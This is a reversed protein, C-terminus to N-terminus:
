SVSQRLASVVTSWNQGDSLALSWVAVGALGNSSVLNLEQSLSDNNAYWVEEYGDSKAYRAYMLGLTNDWHRVAHHSSLIENVSADGIIESTVYGANHVHWFQTYFPVGLILQNTPVGTDLLDNVSNMVWPLDAVPGPTSGQYHEDYAMLIIHDCVSSLGAHFFAANDNLQVIDPSVDVSVDIHLPTCADHLESIFSTFADRDKPDLNEFDINLGDLHNHVASQVLSHMLRDRAPLSHLLQHTMSMKFQNDVLAWIAIHHQHAFSVVSPLVEANLNGQADKVQFWTPSAVNIGPNNMLIQEEAQVGSVPLWGLAIKKSSTAWNTISSFLSTQEQTTSGLSDSTAPLLHTLLSAQHAFPLHFLSSVASYINHAGTVGNQLYATTGVLENVLSDALSTAEFRAARNQYSVDGYIFLVGAICAFAMFVFALLSVLRTKTVPNPRSNM